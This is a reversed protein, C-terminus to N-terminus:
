KNRGIPARWGRRGRQLMKGLRNIAQHNLIGRRPLRNNNRDRVASKRTLATAMPTSMAATLLVSWCAKSNLKKPRNGAGSKKLDAIKSADLPERYSRSLSIRSRLKM